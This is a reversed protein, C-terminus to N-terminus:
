FRRCADGICTDQATGEIVLIVSGQLEQLGQVWFSLQNPILLRGLTISPVTFDQALITALKPSALPVPAGEHQVAAPALLTDELPFLPVSLDGMRGVVSAPPQLNGNADTSMLFNVPIQVRYYIGLNDLNLPCTARIRGDIERKVRLQHAESRFLTTYPFLTSIPPRRRM